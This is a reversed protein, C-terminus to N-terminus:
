GTMSEAIREGVVVAVLHTNARPVTPLISTDAVWLGDYGIVRGGPDVVAGPDDLRGIRCTGAAHVYDGLASRIGEDTLEPLEPDGIRDLLGGSLLDVLRRTAALLRRRDREDGLLNMRVVPDATPDTSALAVTGQSYVQMLAVMVMGLGPAQDGIHDVPLVQLDAPQEGSSWTAFAGIPLSRPDPAMGTHYRVPITVAPHDQLGQGIGPREIGSRLLVAPTHIAGCSVVVRDAAISRGDALGVGVVRGSRLLVRDVLADGILEVRGGALDEGLYADAANVRRGRADRTLVAPAAGVSPDAILARSIPGLEDVGCRGLALRTSGYREAMDAWGWGSAGCRVWDDHDAPDPAVALM